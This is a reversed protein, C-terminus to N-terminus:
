YYTVRFYLEWAFVNASYCFPSKLRHGAKPGATVNGMLDYRNGDSDSMIDPLQHNLPQLKTTEPVLFATVFGYEKNGVVALQAGKFNHRVIRTKDTFLQYDFLLAEDRFLMTKDRLVVGFFSNAPFGGNGAASNPAICISDCTTSHTSDILVKADPYASIATGYNTLLLYENRLADGGMPGKIGLLTMQSWYTETKRDYLVLNNNYLHGSVGFSSGQLDYDRDWAVGSGTLPCFSVGFLDDGYQDNVIEHYWLVNVPYIRVQDQAQYVFVEEGPAMAVDMASVFLPVDISQIRDHAGEHIILDDMPVFWNYEQVASYGQTTSIEAVEKKVCSSFVAICASVFLLQKKM